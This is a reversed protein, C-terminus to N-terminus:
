SSGSAAGYKTTPEGFLEEGVRAAHDYSLMICLLEIILMYVSKNDGFLPSESPAIGSTDAKLMAKLMGFERVENGIEKTKFNIEIIAHAFVNRIRRIRQMEDAMRTSVVGFAKAIVIKSYFDSLPGRNEFLADLTAKDHHTLRKVIYRELVGELLAAGVIAASRDGEKKADDLAKKLEPPAPWRKSLERLSPKKAM